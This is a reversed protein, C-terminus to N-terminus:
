ELSGGWGVFRAEAPISLSQTYQNLLSNDARTGGKGSIMARIQYQGGTIQSDAAASKKIAFPSYQNDSLGAVCVPDSAVSVGLILSDDFDKNIYSVYIPKHDADEGNVFMPEPGSSPVNKGEPTKTKTDMYHIGWLRSFGFDCANGTQPSVFSGFYLVKNFLSLPGTVSEGPELQVDWNADVTGKFIQGNSTDLERTELLSVLRQRVPDAANPKEVLNDIDGTGVMIVYHGSADRSLLPPHISPRGKDYGTLTNLPDHFLDWLPEVLWKSPNPDAMSLRWLVGDQDTFYAARSVDLGDGDVAVSGTLPSPFHQADFEQILQGTAVDVIYLGRGRQEWCRVKARKGAPFKALTKDAVLTTTTCTGSSPQHGQGGPLIAIARERATSENDWLIRAQALAPTAVTLGMAASSFQWLFKPPKDAETIDLAVYAPAGRLASVLVTAYTGQRTTADRSLLMNRVQPTGDFMEQHTPAAASALKGFLAPPVFGWFEVGAKVETNSRDKWTDLNFAHLVGDNTGVFVVGPRGDAGYKDLGTPAPLSLKRLYNNLQEDSTNIFRSNSVLPPLAVPNSHYIDALAPKRETPDARVYRVIKDRDSGEGSVGNGDADGFLSSALSDKDFNVDTYDYAVEAQNTNISVDYAPRNTDFTGSSARVNYVNTANENSKTRYRTSLEGFRGGLITARAATASKPVVTTITRGNSTKSQEDLKLHFFDGDAESLDLPEPALPAGVCGFRQRYLLGEWPDNEDDGIRFGATIEYQQAGAYPPLGNDVVQPTSRTAADHSVNGLISSLKKRLEAPTSAPISPREGGKQAIEDLIAKANEDVDFAVVLLEKLLKSTKLEAALESETPYPCSCKHDSCNDLDGTSLCACDADNTTQCQFRNDRFLADPAGDTILIAYRERCEAFVDNGGSKVSDDNTLYYKLDDLMAAIPTGGFPRVALLSSQVDQNVKVIDDGDEAVAILAGEHDGPGRAGANVGYAECHPFALRGTRGYSYIGPSSAVADMFPIDKSFRDFAVLTEGGLTTGVGDFTMLGFKIRQSFADVVGDSDQNQLTVFDSAATTFNYHPIYYGSDYKKAYKNESRLEKRCTFDQFTGTLAELTVAWRNKQTTDKTTDGTCKPFDDDTTATAPGPMREMSGSTDVLLMVVPKPRRVDIAAGSQASAVGAASLAAFASVAVSRQFWRM